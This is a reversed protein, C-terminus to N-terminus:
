QMVDAPVCIRITDTRAKVRQEIRRQEARALLCATMSPYDDVFYLVGGMTWVVMLM